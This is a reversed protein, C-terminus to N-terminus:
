CAAGAKGADRVADWKQAPQPDRWRLEGVPAQAYPIGLFRDVATGDIGRVAGADVKVVTQAAAMASAGATALALIGAYMMKM